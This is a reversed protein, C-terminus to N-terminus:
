YSFSTEFTVLSNVLRVLEAHSRTTSSKFGLHELMHSVGVNSEVEYRSGADIFLGLTAAQGYTEQSIV